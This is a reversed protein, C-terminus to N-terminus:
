APLRRCRASRINQQNKDCQTEQTHPSPRYHFRLALFWPLNVALHATAGMVVGYAAGMIGYVPTLFLLGGIIGLNYFLPSLAYPLFIRKASLVSGLVASLGLLIPSLM